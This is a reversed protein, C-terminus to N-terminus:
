LFPQAHRVRLKQRAVALRTEYCRAGFLKGSHPRDLNEQLVRSLLPSISVSACEDSLEEQSPEMGHLHPHMLGWALITGVPPCRELHVSAWQMMLLPEQQKWLQPLCLLEQWGQVWESGVAQLM